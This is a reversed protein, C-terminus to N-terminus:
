RATARCNPWSSSLRSASRRRRTRDRALAKLREPDAGEAEGAQRPSQEERDLEEKGDPGSVGCAILEHRQLAHRLGQAAGQGRRRDKATTVIVIDMGRVTDVRDYDIEPFM